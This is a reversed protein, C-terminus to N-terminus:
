ERSATPLKDSGDPNKESAKPNKDSRKPNKDSVMQSKKPRSTNEAQLSLKGGTARLYCSEPSIKCLLAEDSYPLKCLKTRYKCKELSVAM